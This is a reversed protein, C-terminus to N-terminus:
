SGAAFDRGGGELSMGLAARVRARKRSDSAGM